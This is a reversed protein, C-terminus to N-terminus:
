KVAVCRVIKDTVLMGFIARVDGGTSFNSAPLSIKTSRPARPYVGGSSKVVLASGPSLLAVAALALALGIKHNRPAAHAM